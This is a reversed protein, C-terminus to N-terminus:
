IFSLLQFVVFVFILRVIVLVVVGFFGLFLLLVFVFLWIALSLLLFVVVFFLLFLLFLVLLLFLQLGVYAQVFIVLWLRLNRLPHWHEVSLLVWKLFYLLKLRFYVVSNVLVNEERRKVRVHIGQVFLQELPQLCFVLLKKEALLIIQSLSLRLEVLEQVVNQLAREM